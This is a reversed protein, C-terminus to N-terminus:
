IGEKSNKGGSTTRSRQGDPYHGEKRLHGRQEQRELLVHSESSQVVGEGTERSLWREVEEEVEERRRERRTHPQPLAAQRVARDPSPLKRKGAGVDFRDDRQPLNRYQQNEVSDKPRRAPGEAHRPHLPRDPLNEARAPARTIHIDGAHDTSM